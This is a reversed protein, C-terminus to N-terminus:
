RDRLAVPKALAEAVIFAAVLSQPNAFLAAVAGGEASAPRASGPGPPPAASASRRAAPPTVIAPPVPTAVAPPPAPRPPAVGQARERRRPNFVSALLEFLVGLPEEM